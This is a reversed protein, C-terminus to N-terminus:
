APKKTQKGRWLAIAGSLAITLLPFLVTHIRIHIGILGAYYSAITFLGAAALIGIVARELLEFEKQWPLMICWGPLVFLWFTGAILHAIAGIDSLPLMIKLLVGM